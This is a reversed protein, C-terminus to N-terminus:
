RCSATFGDASVVYRWRAHDPMSVQPVQLCCPLAPNLFLPAFRCMSVLCHPVHQVPCVLVLFFSILTVPNLFLFSCTVGSPYFSFRFITIRASRATHCM